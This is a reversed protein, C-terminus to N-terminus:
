DIVQLQEAWFCIFCLTHHSIVFKLIQTSFYNDMSSVFDILWYIFLEKLYQSPTTFGQDFEDGAQYDCLLWAGEGKGLLDLVVSWVQQGFQLWWVVGQLSKCPPIPTSPMSQMPAHIAQGGTTVMCLCRGVKPAVNHFFNHLPYVYYLFFAPACACGRGGPHTGLTYVFARRNLAHNASNTMVLSLWVRM